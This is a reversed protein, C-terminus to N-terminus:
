AILDIISQQMEGAVKMTKLNALGAERAELLQVAQDALDVNPAAVLGQQDAYPSNPDYSPQTAPSVPQVEAETGGGPATIQVVDVPQYAQPGGPSPKLPGVSGANAINSAIGAIRQGAANFGSLAIAFADSM